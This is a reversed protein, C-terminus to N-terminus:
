CSAVFSVQPKTSMVSAKREEYIPVKTTYLIWMDIVCNAEVVFVIKVQLSIRGILYVSLYTSLYQLCTSMPLHIYWFAYSYVFYVNTLHSHMLCSLCAKSINPSDMGGGGEEKWNVLLTLEQSGRRSRNTEKRPSLPKSFFTRSIRMPEMIWGVLTVSM